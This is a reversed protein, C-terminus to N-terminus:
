ANVLTRHLAAVNEKLKEKPGENDIVYDAQDLREKRTVQTSMIAQVQMQSLGSRAMVRQIQTEEPCDVAIVATPEITASERHSGKPGYKELWLPVVYIAYPGAALALAAKAKEQIMPHLIEELRRRSDTSRFVADRMAARDLSGQPTIMASGFAARIADIAAGGTATLAHSLSDADVVSVGLKVFEEAAASKGCGVGGTLIFVRDAM